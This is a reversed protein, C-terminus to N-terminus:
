KKRRLVLAAALAAVAILPLSGPEPVACPLGPVCGATMPTLSPKGPQPLNPAAGPIFEMASEGAAPAPAATQAVAVPASLAGVCLVALAFKLKMTM